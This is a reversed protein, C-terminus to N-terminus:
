NQELLDKGTMESSPSLGMLPLITTAIDALSGKLGSLAKGVLNNNIIFIPVPNNSHETNVLGSKSTVFFSKTPYSLLEEANGHDATIAVTGGKGLTLKVIEGVAKDVAEVAEITKEINGSHAVMDPNAFNLVFFHYKNRRLNKKFRTVIKGASMEPKKDYTEVKPSAVIEVDEGSFQEERLGDFYFTVMREKESEAIRIQKLGENAVIESLTENVSQPPYAIASVPLGKQYETMTVFYINKPVKGRNFTKQSDFNSLTFAQSLQRPRDIRFNFFIVADNDDVIGATKQSVPGLNGTSSSKFIVTPEIFEDTQGRQYSLNVAEVASNAKLGTGSVIADYARKTRDWRGDRDMAYYRGAITSISGINLEAMKNEIQGVVKAGDNPPADRGDTFLHLNVNGMKNKKCFELLAYLHANSSHITGSSVLGMIHLRSQNRVVHAIASLFAKNEFFSGEKIAINIRPLSQYVVRGAGITLHGVESNGVENAPLGVSEGSAILEGNPYKKYSDINPKKAKEIANGESLPAKGWGDLAILVMPRINNKRLGSFSFM